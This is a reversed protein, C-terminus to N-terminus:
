GVAVVWGFVSYTGDLSRLIDLTFLNKTDKVAKMTLVPTFFVPTTGEITGITFTTSSGNVNVAIKVTTATGASLGLNIFNSTFGTTVFSNFNHYFYRKGNSCNYTVTGIPLNNTSSLGTVNNQWNASNSNVTSYTNQWNASLAKLDTGQYNWYLASNSNVTSYASDWNGSSNHVLTNVKTDGSGWNASNSYVTSYTNQWNASLSKLDTGQYNWTTSSNSQVTSYACDWNSSNTNVLSDVALINSSNNLVFTTAATQNYEISSTENVFAYVSNWNSSNSQVLTNVSANSASTSQVLTNVSANPISIVDEVIKITSVNTQPGVVEIYYEVQEM